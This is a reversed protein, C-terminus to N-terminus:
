CWAQCATLAVDVAVNGGGIVVINDKVTVDGTEAVAALFEVGWYVEELESGPLEIRRSLQAGVAVFVAEFGDNKLQEIEYDVGLKQNTKVEIGTSLVLDIERDLM